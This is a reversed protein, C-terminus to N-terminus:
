KYNNGPALGTHPKQSFPCRVNVCHDYFKKGCGYCTRLLKSNTWLIYCGRSDSALLPLNISDKDNLHLVIGQETVHLMKLELYVKDEEYHDVCTLENKLIAKVLVSNWEASLVRACVSASLFVAM